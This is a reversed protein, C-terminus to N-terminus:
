AFLTDDGEPEEKEEEEEEEEAREPTEQEGTEPGADTDTIEEFESEEEQGGSVDGGGYFAADSPAAEQYASEDGSTDEEGSTGEVWGSPEAADAESELSQREHYDSQIDEDLGDFFQEVEAGPQEQQEPQQEPVDAQEVAQEPQQEPVDAQEVAQEPASHMDVAPPERHEEEEQVNHANVDAPSRIESEPAEEQPVPEEADTARRMAPDPKLVRSSEKINRRRATMSRIASDLTVKEKKKKFMLAYLAYLLSVVAGAVCLIKLGTM